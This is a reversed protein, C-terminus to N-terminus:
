KDNTQRDRGWKEHKKSAYKEKFTKQKTNNTKIIKKEEKLRIGNKEFFNKIKEIFASNIDNSSIINNYQLHEFIFNHLTGLNFIYKENKKLENIFEIIKNEIIKEKYTEDLFNLQEIKPM